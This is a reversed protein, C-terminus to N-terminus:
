HGLWDTWPYASLRVDALSGPFSFHEIRVASGSLDLSVPVLKKVDNNNNPIKRLAQVYL